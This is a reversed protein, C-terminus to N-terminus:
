RYRLVTNAVWILEESMVDVYKIDMNGTFVDTHGPEFDDAQSDLYQIRCHDAFELYFIFIYM